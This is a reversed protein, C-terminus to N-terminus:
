DECRDVQRRLWKECAEPMIYSDELAGVVAAHLSEIKKVLALFESLNLGYIAKRRAETSIDDEASDIFRSNIGKSYYPQSELAM